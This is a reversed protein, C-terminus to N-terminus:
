DATWEAMGVALRAVWCEAWQAAMPAALQFVKSDARPAAMWDARMTVSSVVMPAALYEAWQEVSCGVWWVAKQDVMTEVSRMASAGAKKAALWEALLGAMKEVLHAAKEVARMVATRIAWSDAM